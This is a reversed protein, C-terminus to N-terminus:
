KKSWAVIGLFVLGVPQLIWFLSWWGPKKVLEFTKWLWLIFFVLFAIYFFGGIFPILIGILFLIPWWPMKAAKSMLIAPGVLPVWALRAPGVRAKRALSMFAWSTYVYIAAILLVVLMVLAFILGLSLGALATAVKELFDPDQWAFLVIGQNFIGLM